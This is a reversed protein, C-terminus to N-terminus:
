LSRYPPCIGWLTWPRMFKRATERKIVMTALGAAARLPPSCTRGDLIVASPQPDKDAAMRVLALLDHAAAIAKTM